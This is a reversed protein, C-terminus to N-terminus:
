RGPGGSRSVRQSVGGAPEGDATRGPSLVTTGISSGVNGARTAIRRPGTGPIVYTPLIGLLVCFVALLALPSREGWRAERARAAGDSRSLGLFGMAYVKAFCTVALGATLAILAGCVAFIIKIAPSSLVASRLLTQLTLWESVFGNLPPLASISLVGVLVFASTWPMARALGGLQELDRTGAGTEVAGAGVFLLAKYVAHNILHYLAAILAIAAIGRQDSALFIMAAGIGVAVIGMNEITSHALLRKLDSQITAYLIGFLASLSGIILVILGPGAAHIPALDLNVRIIGYIGLNVIVASLLASVNTPAVPHALPLWTNVPVLGAKVAFGFFSLLFIAWIMGENLKSAAAGWDAFRPSGSAAFLLLLAIAVTITGAEGLALMVFGGHASGERDLEYTVLLYSFISMLEWAVLFSLADGAVLVLVVSAFLIHYCVGFYPLSYHRIYKGLYSGSFVSVPLYVLGAGIMLVASLRDAALELTGGSIVPWLELRFGEDAILLAAGTTLLVSAALAGIIALALPGSRISTVLSAVVGVGCLAFFVLILLEATNM